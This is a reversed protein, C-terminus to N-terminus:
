LAMALALLVACAMLALFEVACRRALAEDREIERM